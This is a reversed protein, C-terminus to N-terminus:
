HFAKIQAYLEKLYEQNKGRRIIPFRSLHAFGVTLCKKDGLEMVVLHPGEWPGGSRREGVKKWGFEQLLKVMHDQTEYGNAVIIKPVKRTFIRRWIDKCTQIHAKKAAMEKWAPSRYFVYNSIMWETNMYPIWDETRGLERAMDEFFYMIQHQLPNKTAGAWNENLIANGAEVFLNSPDTELGGPNLGVFLYHSDLSKPETYLFRYSGPNSEIITGIEQILSRQEANLRPQPPAIPALSKSRAAAAASGSDNM